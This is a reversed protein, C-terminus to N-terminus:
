HCSHNMCANHITLEELKGTKFQEITQEVTGGTSRYAKIGGENLKQVARAGMGGCVVADIQKGILSSMPQCTGHSHHQNGNDIIECTNADIDYITFFPASGFHGYVNAAKGQQSDTPICVKM